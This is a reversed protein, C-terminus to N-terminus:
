VKKTENFTKNVLSHLRKPVGSKAIYIRLSASVIDKGTTLAIKYAELASFFEQRAFQKLTMGKGIAITSSM